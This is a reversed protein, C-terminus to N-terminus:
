DNLLGYLKRRSNNGPDEQKSTWACIWLSGKIFMAFRRLLLPRQNHVEPRRVRTSKCATVLNESFSMAEM